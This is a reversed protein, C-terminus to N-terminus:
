HNVAHWLRVLAIPHSAGSSALACQLRHGRYYDWIAGLLERQRETISLRLEDLTSM